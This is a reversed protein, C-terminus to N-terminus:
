QWNPTQLTHLTCKVNARAALWKVARCCTWDCQPSSLGKWNRTSQSCVWSPIRHSQFTTPSAERAKSSPTNTPPGQFPFQEAATIGVPHPPASNLIDTSTKWNRFPNGKEKVSTWLKQPKIMVGREALCSIWSATLSSGHRQAIHRRTPCRITVLCSPPGQMWRRPHWIM